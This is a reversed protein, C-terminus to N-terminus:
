LFFVMFIDRKGVDILNIKNKADREVKFTVRSEKINSKSRVNVNPTKMILYFTLVQLLIGFM